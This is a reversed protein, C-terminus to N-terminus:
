ARNDLVDMVFSFACYLHYFTSTPMYDVTCHGNEDFQDRWGGYSDKPLGNEGVKLYTAFLSSLAQWGHNLFKQNNTVLFQAFSAKIFETQPWCRRTKQTIHGFGNFEDILQYRDQDLGLTVGNEYLADAYAGIERGSHKEYLRILWVWEMFHGPELRQDEVSVPTWDEKFYELLWGRDGDFFYKEFLDFLADARTIYEADGTIEYLALMAEFMHMHPNQRRPLDHDLNEYLSGNPATLVGDVFSMTQHILEIARDDGTARFFHGLGFLAFAHDYADRSPNSIDGSADVSHVFGFEGDAMWFHDVLANFCSQSVELSTSYLGRRHADSYVYLQRAHVLLRRPVSAIASREFSLREFVGGNEIDRGQRDWLPLAYERLWAKIQEDDM